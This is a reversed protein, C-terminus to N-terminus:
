KTEGQNNQVEHSENALRKKTGAVFGAICVGATIAAFVIGQMLNIEEM